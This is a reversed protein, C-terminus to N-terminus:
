EDKQRASLEDATPVQLVLHGRDNLELYPDIKREISFPEDPLTDEDLELEDIPDYDDFYISM